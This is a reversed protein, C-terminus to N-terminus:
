KKKFRYKSLQKNIKKLDCRIGKLEFEDMKNNKILNERFEYENLLEEFSLNAFSEQM